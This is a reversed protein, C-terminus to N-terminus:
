VISVLRQVQGHLELLCATVSNKRLSCCVRADLNKLGRMWRLVQLPILVEWEAACCARGILGLVEEARGWM